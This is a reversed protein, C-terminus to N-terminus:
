RARMKSMPYFCLCPWNPFEPYLRQKNMPGLREAYSAVKAKYVNSEPDIGERDRLIKAYDDADPVYESVEALPPLVLPDVEIRGWRRPKCALQVAHVAKLDKGAMMIGSIRRTAPQVACTHLQEPAGEASDTLAVGIVQARGEELAQPSLAALAARDIQYFVHLFHWGTEPVLTAPVQASSAPRHGHQMPQTQTPANPRSEDSM